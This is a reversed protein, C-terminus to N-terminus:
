RQSHAGNKAAALADFGMKMIITPSYSEPLQQEFAVRPGDFSGLPLTLGPCNPNYLLIYCNWLLSYCNITIKRFM